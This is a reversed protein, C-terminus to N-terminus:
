ATTRCMAGAITAGNDNTCKKRRTFDAFVAIGINTDTLIRIVAM